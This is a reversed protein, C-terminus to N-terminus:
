IYKKYCINMDVLTSIGDINGSSTYQWISYKGQYDSKKEPAGKVYHALWVDYEALSAMNLQNQTWDKNTYIIPTYGAEKITKCFGRMASTRDEKSIWDARGDKDESSWETDIAIPYKIDYGKIKELVWKAEEIGEQENIAQSFFYIGCNIGNALAGEINKRYYNDEVIKGTSYGRLGIRIMAFDIQTKVKNWEIEKQYKSVDIGKYELEELKFKQSDNDNGPYVQINTGNNMNNYYIDLYYGNAKNRFSYNGNNDAKQIAWKQEELDNDEQQVVNNGKVVTLLKKSCGAEITYYGNGQYKIHFSQNMGGNSDWLSVNVGNGIFGGEIDVAKKVNSSALIAYKGNSITSSFETKVLKFKQNQGGHKEYVEINSGNNASGGCIDLALGSSKSLITYYGNGSSVIAWKQEDTGKDFQQVVNSGNLKSNNQVTLLKNSNFAKITYYGDNLYTIVFKQNNANKNEWIEVNAGNSIVNGEIDVVQNSNLSSTIFYSGSEITKKAEIEAEYFKFKQWPQDNKTYVELNTGFEGGQIDLYLGNCKSIIYYYGNGASKIAWKQSDLDFDQDQEVNAGAAVSSNKVTLVKDSHTAVIKYYGQGDYKLKFKQNSANNRTYIEANAGNEKSAWPIDLVRNFSIGSSINYTNEAITKEGKIVEVKNFKFKQNTGSKGEYLEVNTGLETKAGHIDLYLSSEKSIIYYYGNGAEKIVWKQIDLDEYTKQIVNDENKANFNTGSLYKGSCVVEMKYYGNELYTINFKQNNQGNKKWVTVNAGNNMSAGSIDLVLDSNMASSIIYTGNEITKTGKITEKEEKIEKKDEEIIEKSNDQIIEKQETKKIEQQNEQNVEQQEQEKIEQPNEERIEQQKEEEIEKPNDQIAEQKEEQIEQQEEYDALEVTNINIMFFILFTTVFFIIKSKKM